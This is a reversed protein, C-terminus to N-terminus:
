TMLIINTTTIRVLIHVSIYKKNLNRHRHSVWLIKLLGTPSHYHYVMAMPVLTVLMVLVVLKVLKVLM